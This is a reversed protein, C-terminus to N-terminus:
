WRTSKQALDNALGAPYCRSSNRYVRRSSRPSAPVVCCVVTFASTRAHRSFLPLIVPICWLLERGFRATKEFLKRNFCHCVIPLQPRLFERPTVLTFIMIQALLFYHMKWLWFSCLDRQSNRFTQARLTKTTHAQLSASYPSSWRVM